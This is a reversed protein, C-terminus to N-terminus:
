QIHRTRAKPTANKSRDAATQVPSSWFIAGTVKSSRQLKLRPSDEGHSHEM